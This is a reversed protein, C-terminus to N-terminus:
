REPAWSLLASSIPRGVLKWSVKFRLQGLHHRLEDESISSGVANNVAGQINACAFLPHFPLVIYFTRLSGISLNTQRSKQEDRFFNCTSRIECIQSLPFGSKMLRNLFLERAHLYINTQSSLQFMHRLCASPWSLFTGSAHASTPNLYMGRDKLLPRFDFMGTLAFKEGKFIQVDLFDM